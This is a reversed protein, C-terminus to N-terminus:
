YLWKIRQSLLRPLTAIGAVTESEDLNPAEQLLIRVASIHEVGIQQAADGKLRNHRGRLCAHWAGFVGSVGAFM